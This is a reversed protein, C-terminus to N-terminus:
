ATGHEQSEEDDLIVGHMELLKQLAAIDSATDTDAIDSAGEEYQSLTQGMQLLKIVQDTAKANGKLGDRLVRRLLAEVQSVKKVKGGERIRVKKRMVEDILTSVSKQGKPRGRPNGSEGPKFQGSKPPKGYGIDYNDKAM